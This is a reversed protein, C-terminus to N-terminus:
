CSRRRERHARSPRPTSDRGRALSEWITTDMDRLCVGAEPAAHELLALARLSSVQHGIATAVWQCVRRDPKTTNAGFLMRLYQFGALGFGQIGLKAQRDSPADKAWSELIALERNRDRSCNGSISLLRNVVNALTVARAEHRYQLTELVFRHPSKFKGIESNLERVSRVRPHSQEFRNLRPVVFRDYNRNLSLVCDIVRLAPERTWASDASKRISPALQRLAKVLRQHDAAGM